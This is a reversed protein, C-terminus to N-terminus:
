KKLFMEVVKIFKESEFPKIIWGTAGNSKAEIMKAKDSETTLMIIPNQRDIKRIEKVLEIGNMRPMNVDFVYLNIKGKNAEAKSLADLGDFAEIVDNYGFLALSQKVIDRVIKSDDVILIKM